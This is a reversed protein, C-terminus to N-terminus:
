SWDEADCEPGWWSNPWVAKLQLLQDNPPLSAGKIMHAHKALLQTNRWHFARMLDIPDSLDYTRLPIIHDIEDDGIPGLREELEACSCGLLDEVTVDRQSLPPLRRQELAEDILALTRHVVPHTREWERNCVLRRARRIERNYAKIQARHVRNWARKKALREERPLNAWGMHLINM